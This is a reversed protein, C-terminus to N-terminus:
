EIKDLLQSILIEPKSPAMNSKGSGTQNLNDSNKRSNGSMQVVPNETSITKKIEDVKRHISVLKYVAM